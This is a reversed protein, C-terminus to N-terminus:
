DAKIGLSRVLPIWRDREVGIFRGLDEPTGPMPQEGIAQLKQVVEPRALVENITRNMDTVLQRPTQAPAMLVKWASIEINAYGLEKLTPVAPLQPFRRDDLIALPRILGERAQQISSPLADFMIDVHGGMLSTIAPASGPFPVHTVKFGMLASAYEGSLHTINGVGASAMSLRPNDKRGAAILDAVSAAGLERRTVLLLPSKSLGAVPVFAREPDYPMKAYLASNFVLPGNSGVFFTRGDPAARAVLEAAIMGGAGARNEVVVPGGLAAAAEQAVLRAVQDAAGGPPFPVVFRIPATQAQLGAGNLALLLAAGLARIRTTIM